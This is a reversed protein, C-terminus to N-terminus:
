KRLAQKINEVGVIKKNDLILTPTKIGSIKAKLRMIFSNETLDVLTYVMRAEELLSIAEQDEESYNRFKQITVPSTSIVSGHHDINFSSSSGLTIKKSKVYLVLNGM